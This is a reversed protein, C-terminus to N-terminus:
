RRVLGRITSWAMDMDARVPVILSRISVGNESRFYMQLVILRSVLGATMALGAGSLGMAPYLVLLGAINTSMGVWTAMSIVGPKGRGEFYPMLVTSAAHAAIGPAMWWVIGIGALFAPSLLMAVVWGSFPLFVGLALLAAAVALRSMQVVLEHRGTSDAAIRPLLAEQMAQALLLFRLMLASLAAYIGVDSAFAIVALVLVGANFDIAHAIATPYSRIGFAFVERLRERPVFSLPAALRRTLWFLSVGTAVLYSAALAVSRWTMVTVSWVWSWM